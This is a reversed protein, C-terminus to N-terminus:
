HRGGRAGDRNTLRMSFKAELGTTPDQINCIRLNAPPVRVEIQGISAPELRYTERVQTAADISAHTAYCAAHFKFLTNRTLFREGLGSLASERAATGAYAENFGQACELIDDRSTFGRRALLAAHLGNRAANGAHLSKCMTGFLSKLGAAHAAAIGVAAATREADLGLLRASAAAAGLTGVTGTAHWGADYHSAGLFRGIRCEAEVGAVFSTILDRGSRDDREALALLAPAVPVTPHGPMDFHVDDYDLVHSATGNVQAAQSITLRYSTGLVSAQPEGGEARAEERVLQATEDGAGAITVGLWDLLCQRAVLRVEEPVDEHRLGSAHAALVQTVGSTAGTLTVGRTARSVSQASKVM